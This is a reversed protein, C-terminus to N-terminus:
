ASGARLTEVHHPARRAPRRTSTNNVDAIKEVVPRMREQLQHLQRLYDDTWVIKFATATGHGTEDSLDRRVTDVLEQVSVEFDLPAALTSKSGEVVEALQAYWRSV